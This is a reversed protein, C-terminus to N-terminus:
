DRHLQEAPVTAMNIINMLEKCIDRYLIRAEAGSFLIDPNKEVLRNMFKKAVKPIGKQAEFHM